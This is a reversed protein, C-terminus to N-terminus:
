KIREHRRAANKTVQRGLVLADSETIESDSVFEKFKELNVKEKHM